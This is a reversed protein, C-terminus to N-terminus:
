YQLKIERVLEALAEADDMARHTQALAKSMKREYLELLRLRRGSLHKTYNVTCIQKPPYPFAYEKGIRRLEVTLVGLDFIVNHAVICIEGITYNCLLEYIELFTPANELDANTLRTITKHTEEDLPKSPKLLTGYRDIEEYTVDDLRIMAIEIIDPQAKLDAVDPKLLDTTETDFIIM